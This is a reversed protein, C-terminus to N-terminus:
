FIALNVVTSFYRVQGSAATTGPSTHFPLQVMEEHWGQENENRGWVAGNYSKQLESEGYLGKTTNKLQTWEGDSEHPNASLRSQFQWIMCKSKCYFVGRELPLQFIQLQQRRSGEMVQKGALFSTLRTIDAMKMFGAPTHSGPLSAM